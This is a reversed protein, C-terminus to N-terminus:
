DSLTYQSNASEKYHAHLGQYTSYINHWNNCIFQKINDENNTNHTTPNYTILILKSCKKLYLPFNLLHISTM